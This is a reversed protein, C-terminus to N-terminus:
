RIRDSALPSISWLRDSTLDDLISDDLPVPVPSKRLTPDTLRQSEIIPLCLCKKALARNRNVVRNGIEFRVLRGEILDRPARSRQRKSTM